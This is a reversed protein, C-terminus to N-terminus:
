RFVLSYWAFTPLVIALGTGARRCPPPIQRTLSDDREAFVKERRTQILHRIQRALLHQLGGTQYKNHYDDVFGMWLDEPSREEPWLVDEISSGGTKPIHVFICRLADSIM